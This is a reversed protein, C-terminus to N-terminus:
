YFFASKNVEVALNSRKRTFKGKLMHQGIALLFYHFTGEFLLQDSSPSADSHCSQCKLVAGPSLSPHLNFSLGRLHGREALVPSSCKCKISHLPCAAAEGGSVEGKEKGDGNRHPTGSLNCQM